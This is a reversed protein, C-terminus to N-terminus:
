KNYQQLAKNYAKCGKQYYEHEIGSIDVTITGDKVKPFIPRKRFSILHQPRYLYIITDMIAVLYM